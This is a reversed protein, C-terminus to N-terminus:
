RMLLVTGFKESAWSYRRRKCFVCLSLLVLIAQIYASPEPVATLSDVTADVLIGTGGIIGGDPTTDFFSLSLSRLDFANWLDIDAPISYETILKKTVSEFALHFEWSMFSNPVTGPSCATGISWCRLELGSGYPEFSIPTLDVNYNNTIPPYFGLVPMLDFTSSQLEVRDIVFSIGSNQPGVKGTPASEFTFQGHISSGDDLSFPLASAYPGRFVRTVQANFEFTQTAANAHAVCLLAIACLTKLLYKM